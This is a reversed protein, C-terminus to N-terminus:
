KPDELFFPESAGPRFEMMGIHIGFLSADLIKANPTIQVVTAVVKEDSLHPVFSALEIADGLKLEQVIEKANRAM